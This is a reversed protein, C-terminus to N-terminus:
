VAEVLGNEDEVGETVIGNVCHIIFTLQRVTCNASIEGRGSITFGGDINSCFWDM